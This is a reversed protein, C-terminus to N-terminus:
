NYILLCIMSITKNLTSTIERYKLKKEFSHKVGFSSTIKKNSFDMIEVKRDFKGIALVGSDSIDLCSIIENKNFKEYSDKLCFKGM